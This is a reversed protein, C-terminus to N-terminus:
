PASLKWGYETWREVPIEAGPSLDVGPFEGFIGFSGTVHEPLALDCADCAARMASNSNPGLIFYASDFLRDRQLCRAVALSLEYEAELREQPQAIMPLVREGIEMRANRPAGGPALWWDFDRRMSTNAFEVVGDLDDYPDPCDIQLYMHRGRGAVIWSRLECRCTVAPAEAVAGDTGAAGTPACRAAAFLVGGTTFLLLIRGPNTM